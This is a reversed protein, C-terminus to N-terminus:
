PADVLVEVLDVIRLGGVSQAHDVRWVLDHAEHDVAGVPEASANRARRQDVLLDFNEVGAVPVPVKTQSSSSSSGPRGSFAAGVLVLVLQVGVFHRDQRVVDRVQIDLRGIGRDGPLIRLIRVQAEDVREVVHGGEADAPALM